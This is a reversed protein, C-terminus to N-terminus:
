HAFNRLQKALQKIPCLNCAHIACIGLAPVVGNCALFKFNWGGEGVRPCRRLESEEM